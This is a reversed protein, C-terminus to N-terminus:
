LLGGIGVFQFSLNPIYDGTRSDKLFVNSGCLLRIGSANGLKFDLVGGLLGSIGNDDFGYVYSPGMGFAFSGENVLFLTLTNASRFTPVARDLSMNGNNQTIFEITHAKRGFLPSLVLTSTYNFDMHVGLSSQEESAAVSPGFGMYAKGYLASRDPLYTPTYIMDAGLSAAYIQSEGSVMSLLNVQFAAQGTPDLYFPEMELKGIGMSSNTKAHLQKAQAELSSVCLLVGLVITFTFNQLSKLM